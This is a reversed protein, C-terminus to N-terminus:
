LAEALQGPMALSCLSAPRLIAQQSHYRNAIFLALMKLVFHEVTMRAAALIRDFVPPLFAKHLCEKGRFLEYTTKV